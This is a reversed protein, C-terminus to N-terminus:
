SKMSIILILQDPFTEGISKSLRGSGALRWGSAVPALWIWGFCALALWLLGSGALALLICRLFNAECELWFPLFLLVVNEAVAHFSDLWLCSGSTWISL